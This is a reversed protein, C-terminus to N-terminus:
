KHANNLLEELTQAKPWKNRKYTAERAMTNRYAWPTWKDNFDILLGMKKDGWLRSLRGPIQDNRVKSIMGDARVLVNLQKYDVGESWTMTAIAARLEGSAMKDSLKNKDKAKLTYKDQMFQIAVTRIDTPDMSHEEAYKIFVEKMMSDKILNDAVTDFSTSSGGYHVVPVDPLYQNLIVAHELTELMVLVQLGRDMATKVVYAITENRTRNRWYAWRKKFLQSTTKGTDVDDEIFTPGNNVDMMLYNIQTVNGQEVSEEYEIDVLRRGFFCELMIESGDSRFPTATFGFRRCNTFRALQEACDNVGLAHAEDFLLLQVEEEPIKHLSRTTTVVVRKGVSNNVGAYICGAEDGVAEVARKYLERVVAQAKSIILINLTPFMKLIQQIIFSKGYGTAAKIIGGDSAAITALVELQRGRLPDVRSWDPMPRIDQNTHKHVEYKIGVKDLMEEVKPRLGPMFYARGDQIRFLDTTEFRYKSVKSPSMGRRLADKLEEKYESPLKMIRKSCKLKSLVDSVAPIMECVADTQTITVM